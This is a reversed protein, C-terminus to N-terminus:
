AETSVPNEIPNEVTTKGRKRRNLKFNRLTNKLHPNEQSRANLFAIIQRYDSFLGRIDITLENEEQILRTKALRLEEQKKMAAEIQAQKANLDENLPNINEAKCYENVAKYTSVFSESPHYIKTRNTKKLNTM